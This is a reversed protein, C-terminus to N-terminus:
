DILPRPHPGFEGTPAPTLLFLLSPLKRASRAEQDECITALTHILRPNPDAEQEVLRSIVAQARELLADEEEDGEEEAEDEEEEEAEDEEEDEPDAAPPVASPPPPPQDAM